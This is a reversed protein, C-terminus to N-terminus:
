DDFDDDVDETHPPKETGKDQDDKPEDPKPKKEEEDPYSTEHTASPREPPTNQLPRNGGTRPNNGSGFANMEAYPFLTEEVMELNQDKLSLELDTEEGRLIFDMGTFFLNVGSDSESDHNIGYTKPGIRVNEIDKGIDLGSVLFLDTDVSNNSSGSFMGFFGKSKPKGAAKVNEGLPVPTSVLGSNTNLSAYHGKLAGYICCRKSDDPYFIISEPDVNFRESQILAEKLAETFPEFLFARGALLVQDFTDINANSIDHVIKEVLRGTREKIIYAPDPIPKNPGIVEEDLFSIIDRLNKATELVSIDAPTNGPYMSHIKKAKELKDMTNLVFTSEYSRIEEKLWGEDHSGSLHYQILEIFGYTLYQGAGPLGSRFISKYQHEQGDQKMVSYDTTGKGSDIILYHGGEKKRVLSTDDAVKFSMGILSADSESITDVEIGKISEYEDDKVIENFDKYLDETIQSIMRQGYVNPALLTIYLYKDETTEWNANDFICRLFKSLILRRIAKIFGPDVLNRGRSKLPNNKPDGFNVKPKKGENGGIKQGLMEILKLNPMLYSNGHADVLFPVLLYLLSDKDHKNPREAYDFGKLANANVFFNSRYLTDDNEGKGGVQSQWFRDTNDYENYYPRLKEIISLRDVNGEGQEEKANIIGIQTSDSGFDIAARYLVHDGIRPPIHFRLETSFESDSGGEDRLKVEYVLRLVVRKWKFAKSRLDMFLLDDKKGTRYKDTEKAFKLEKDSDEHIRFEIKLEDGDDELVKSLYRYRGMAQDYNTGASSIIKDRTNITFLKLIGTRMPTIFEIHNEIQDDNLHCIHTRRGQIRIPFYYSAM